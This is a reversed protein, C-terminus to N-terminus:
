ALDLQKRNRVIKRIALSVSLCTNILVGFAAIFMGGIYYGLADWGDYSSSNFGVYLM